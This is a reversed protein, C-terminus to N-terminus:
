PLVLRQGPVLTASHLGNRRELTWVAHQRPDVESTMQRVNKTAQTNGRLQNLLETTTTGFLREILSGYRPQQAPREGADATM